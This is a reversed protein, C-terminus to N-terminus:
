QFIVHQRVQRVPCQLSNPFILSAWHSMATTFRFCISLQVRQSLSCICPRPWRKSSSLYGNGPPCNDWKTKLAIGIRDIRDVVSMQNSNSHSKPLLEHLVHVCHPADFANKSFCYFICSTNELRRSPLSSFRYLHLLLM